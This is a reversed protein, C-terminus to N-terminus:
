LREVVVDRDSSMSLLMEMRIGPFIKIDCSHTMNKLNLASSSFDIM